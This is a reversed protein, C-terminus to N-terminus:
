GSAAQRSKGPSGPEQITGHFPADAGKIFCAAQYPPIATTGGKHPTTSSAGNGSRKKGAAKQGRPMGSTGQLTTIGLAAYHHCPFAANLKVGKEMAVAAPHHSKQRLRIVAYGGRESITKGGAGHLGIIFALCKRQAAEHPKGGAGSEHVANGGAAHTNKM